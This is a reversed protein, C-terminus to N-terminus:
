NFDTIRQALTLHSVENIRDIVEPYDHLFMTRVAAGIQCTLNTPLMKRGAWYEGIFTFSVDHLWDWLPEQGHTIVDNMLGLNVEHMKVFTMCTKSPPITIIGVFSSVTNVGRPTMSIVFTVPVAEQNNCLVATKRAIDQLAREESTNIRRTHMNTM